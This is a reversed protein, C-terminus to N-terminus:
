NIVLAALNTLKASAELGQAKMSTQNLEFTIGSGSTVFNICSGKKALDKGDTIILTNEGKFKSIVALLQSIENKPIIIVQCKPIEGITPSNSVQITRNGVRQNNMIKQLEAYVTKNKGFMVVSFNGSSNNSKWEIQKIFNYIFLAQLKEVQANVISWTCCLFLITVFKKM